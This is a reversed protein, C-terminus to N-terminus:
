RTKVRVLERIEGIDKRNWYTGVYLVFPNERGRLYDCFGVYVFNKDRPDIFQESCWNLFESYKGAVIFTVPRRVEVKVEPRLRGLLTKVDEYRVLDGHKKPVLTTDLERNVDTYVWSEFRPITKLIDDATLSAEPKPQHPAIFLTNDKETIAKNIEEPEKTIYRIHCEETENNPYKIFVHLHYKCFLLEVTAHKRINGPLGVKIKDGVKLCYEKPVYYGNSNVIYYSESLERVNIIEGVRGSYWPGKAVDKFIKVEM